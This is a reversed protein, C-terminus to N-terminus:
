VPALLGQQSIIKWVSDVSGQQGVADGGGRQKLGASVPWCSQCQLLQDNHGWRPTRLSLLHFLRVECQAVGSSWAPMQLSPLKLRILSPIVDLVCVRWKNLCCYRPFLFLLNLVWEMISYTVSSKKASKYDPFLWGHDVFWWPSCFVNQEKNRQSM